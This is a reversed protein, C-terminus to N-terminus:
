GLHFFFSFQIEEFFDDFDDDIPTFSLDNANAFDEASSGSYGIMNDGSGLGSDNSFMLAPYEVTLTTYGTNNFAGKGIIRVSEPLTISNIAIDTFAYAGIGEVGDTIVVDIPTTVNNEELIAAFPSVPNSTIEYDMFGTGSITLVGDAYDYTINDGCRLDAPAEVTLTAANSTKSQGYNDYVTCRFQTGSVWVSGEATFTPEPSGVCNWTDSDPLLYEWQYTLDGTGTATVTFTADTDPTITTDSPDTINLAQFYTLTVEDTEKTNGNADTILCKVKMGDRSALYNVKISSKTGGSFNSWTTKGNLQYKWQYTLGDGSAVVSFTAPSEAPVTTDIPPKSIIIDDQVEETAYAIFDNTGAFAIPVNMTTVTLAMLFAVIKKSNRM